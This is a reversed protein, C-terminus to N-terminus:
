GHKKQSLFVWLKVWTSVSFIYFVCVCVDRFGRLRGAMWHWPFQRLSPHGPFMDDRGFGGRHFGTVPGVSTSTDCKRHGRVSSGVRWVSSNLLRHAKSDDKKPQQSKQNQPSFTPPTPSPNSFGTLFVQSRFFRSWSRPVWFIQLRTKKQVMEQHKFVLSSERPVVYNRFGLFGFSSPAQFSNKFSWGLGITWASEMRDMWCGHFTWEGWGIGM